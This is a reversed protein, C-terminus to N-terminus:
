SALKVHEIMNDLYEIQSDKQFISKLNAVGKLSATILKKAMTNLIAPNAMYLDDLFIVVEKWKMDLRETLEQTNESRLVFTSQLTSLIVNNHLQMLENRELRAMGELNWKVDQENTYVIAPKPETKKWTFLDEGNDTKEEQLIQEPLIQTSM